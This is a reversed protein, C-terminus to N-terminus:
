CPMCLIVPDNELEAWGPWSGVQGSATPTGDTNTADEATSSAAVTSARGREDIDTGDGPLRKNAGLKEIALKTTVTGNECSM